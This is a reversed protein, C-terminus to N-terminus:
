KRVKVVGSSAGFVNSKAVGNKNRSTKYRVTSNAGEIKVFNVEDVEIKVNAGQIIIQNAFGKVKIKCSAGQVRLTGGNMTVTREVGAGEIVIEEKSEQQVIEPSFSNAYVGMSFFSAVVILIVKLNKM